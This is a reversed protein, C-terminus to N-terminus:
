VRQDIAIRAVPCRDPVVERIIIAVVTRYGLRKFIVLFGDLQIGDFRNIILVEGRGSIQEALVRHFMVVDGFRLNEVLRKFQIAFRNLKIRVIKRQRGIVRLTVVADLRKAGVVREDRPRIRQVDGMVVDIAFANINMQRSNLHGGSTVGLRARLEVGHGIWHIGVELRPEFAVERM